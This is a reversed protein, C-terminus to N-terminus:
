SIDQYDRALKQSVLANLSIGAASAEILLAKHIRQDIRVSFQDSYQKRLPAIPIEEGHKRYSEKIGEWAINLEDLAKQPNNGFASVNPHEVFYALWDGDEDYFLNITFGDFDYNKNDM